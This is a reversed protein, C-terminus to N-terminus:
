LVTPTAYCLETRAPQRTAIFSYRYYALTFGYPARPESARRGSRGLALVTRAGGRARMRLDGLALGCAGLEPRRLRSERYTVCIRYEHRTPKGKNSTYIIQHTHQLRTMLSHIQIQFIIHFKFKSHLM